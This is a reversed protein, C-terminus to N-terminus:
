LQMEFTMTPAMRIYSCIIECNQLLLQFNRRCVEITKLPFVKRINSSYYPHLGMLNHLNIM